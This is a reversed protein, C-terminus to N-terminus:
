EAQHRQQHHQHDVEHTGPADSKVAWLTVNHRSLVQGVIELQPRTLQRPGVHLAVRGGKFFSAKEALRADLEEVLGQWVGPGVTIILGNSTGKITIRDNSM